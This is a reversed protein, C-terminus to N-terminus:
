GGNHQQQTGEPNHMLRQESADAGTVGMTFWFTSGQGEGESMVDIVGNHEEVIRRCLALGIGNGEFEDATHLRSFVKFLGEKDEPRIGIGNDVVRVRWQGDSYGSRIEVVPQREAPVYTVANSVLNQFLRVIENRRVAVEPWEGTVRVEAGREDLTPQLFALAEDVLELTPLTALPDGQRGVRSFELLSRIMEDMRVAGERANNLYRGTKEDLQGALNRELLQLYSNVMRLPQRMDHSVAYAFQELDANSRHLEETRQEVQQEMRDNAQQLAQEREAVREQMRNFAVTLQALEDSGQVQLAGGPEGATVRAAGQQLRSVRQVLRQGFVWLWGALLGAGLIVLIAFAIARQRNDRELDQYLSQATQYHTDALRRFTRTTDNFRPTAEYTSLTALREFDSDGAAETIRELERHYREWDTRLRQIDGDPGAEQLRELAEEFGAAKGQLIDVQSILAFHDRTQRMEVEQERIAQLEAQLNTVRALEAIQEEVLYETDTLMQNLTREAMALVVLMFVGGAAFAAVLRTRLSVRPRM